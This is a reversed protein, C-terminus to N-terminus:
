AASTWLVGLEGLAQRADAFANTLADFTARMDYERALRHDRAEAYSQRGIGEYFSVGPAGKRSQRKEIFTAFFSTMFLYHNGAAAHLHFRQGGSAEQVRAFYDISLLMPEADLGFPHGVNEHRAFEALMCAIYEALDHDELGRARLVRRVNLYFFLRTSLRLYAGSELLKAYLRDSDLIRDAEEPDVLLRLLGEQGAPTDALAELIFTLDGESLHHRSRTYSVAMSENM